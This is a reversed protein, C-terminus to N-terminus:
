IRDPFDSIIGNVSFSKIKQIDEPENVTWAFVQFGEEQMQVTMKESLLHYYAHVSKADIFKAFAFALELDYETLVGLPIEPNLLHIDLLAIWDFSSILFQDRKWNKNEVYSEILKVVPKAMGKGKIEVNILCQRNILDFVETLTPIQQALEALLRQDHGNEIRFAKLEQLSLKNVFGKGDTTRDITEDHIVIIEGDSSLHIDLEIGDVKLDLAKQFAILTNEPQYGKAGRHAIKLISSM